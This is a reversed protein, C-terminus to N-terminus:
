CQFNIHHGSKFFEAVLLALCNGVRVVNDLCGYVSLLRLSSPYLQILLLAVAFEWSRCDCMVSMENSHYIIRALNGAARM